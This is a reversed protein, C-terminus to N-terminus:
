VMQSIESETEQTVSVYDQLKMFRFEAFALERLMNIVPIFYVPNHLEELLYSEILGGNEEKSFVKRITYIEDKKPLQLKVDPNDKTLEDLKFSDNICVVKM